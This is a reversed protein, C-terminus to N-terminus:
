GRFQYGSMFKKYVFEAFNEFEKRLEELNENVFKGREAIDKETLLEGRLDEHELKRNRLANILRVGYLSGNLNYVDLVLRLQEDKITHKNYFDYLLEELSSKTKEIGELERRTGFGIYPADFHYHDPYKVGSYEDFEEVGRKKVDEYGHGGCSAITKLGILNLVAVSDYIPDEVETSGLINEFSELKKRLTSFNLGEHMSEQSENRVM